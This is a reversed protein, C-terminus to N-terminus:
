QEGRIFEGVFRALWEPSPLDPMKKKEDSISVSVFQSVKKGNRLGSGEFKRKWYYFVHTSLENERCYAAMGKQHRKGLEVHGRWQEQKSEEIEM